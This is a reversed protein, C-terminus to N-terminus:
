EGAKNLLETKLLYAGNVVVQDGARLGSFIEIRGQRRAGVIVKRPIFSQSDQRVFVIPEGAADQVASEPIHLARTDKNTEFEVTAFMDPKLLGRPNPVLVRVQLTRTVPDLREGLRLVRGSFKRGPFARVVVDVRQGPRVRSLDAENVAAILWLSDLDAVTFVPDGTSVVTGVTAKRDMVTGAAPSKIRLGEMSSGHDDEGAEVPVELFDTLHFRTKDVDAQATAVANTTSLYMTEAADLQERSAARLEFLRRTRDRVTRAQESLVKERALQALAQRYTARADHVEHSHLVALVQGERVLDGVRAPMAIIKGDTIAGVLWSADENIQLQGTASIPAALASEEAAVVTIGLDRSVGSDVTIAETEAKSLQQPQDKVSAPKQACSCLWCATM